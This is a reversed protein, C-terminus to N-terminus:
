RGAAGPAVHRFSRAIRRCIRDPQGVGAALEVAPHGALADEILGPDINHGGRIIIDKARGALWLYGDGDLRALDGTALWGPKAWATEDHEPSLYGPTVTSGSIILEGVEGVACDRVYRHRDDLIAPTVRQGPIPLGISGARREGELPNLTSLASGETLGYGELISLGTVTEFAEM